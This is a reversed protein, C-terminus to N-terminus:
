SRPLEEHQPVPVGAGVLRLVLPEGASLMAALSGLAARVIVARIRGHRGALSSALRAALALLGPAPRMFVTMERIRGADDLRLLNAEELYHRGVRGKWFIVQDPTGEGITEYFRMDSVVAFVRRFLDDAQERGEFRIHRTIPSRVVIDDSFCALVAEVDHAHVAAELAQM